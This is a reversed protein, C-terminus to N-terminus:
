HSTTYMGKHPTPYLHHPTPYLHPPTYTLYPILPTPYLDSLTYTTHPILRIPYLHHPTYTPYPILPTPYLCSIFPITRAIFTQREPIHKKILYIDVLSSCCCCVTNNKNAVFMIMASVTFNFTVFYYVTSFIIYGSQLIFALKLQVHLKIM